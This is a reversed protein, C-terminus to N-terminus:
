AELNGMEENMTGPFEKDPFIYSGILFAALGVILGPIIPEQSFFKIGFNEM